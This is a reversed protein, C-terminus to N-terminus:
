SGSGSPVDEPCELPEALEPVDDPLGDVRTLKCRQDEVLGYGSAQATVTVGTATEADAGVTVGPKGTWIEVSGDAWAAIDAVAKGWRVAGGAGDGLRVIAWRLDAGSGSGSGSANLDLSAGGASGVWLIRASGSSSKVLSYLDGWCEAFDGAAATGDLRVIAAGAVVAKGIEGDPIPELTVVFLGAHDTTPTVCSFSIAQRFDEDNTAPSILIDDIGLISFQDVDDGSNNEVKIITSSGLGQRGIGAGFGTEDNSFRRVLDMAANWSPARFRLPDGPNVHQTPDGPM